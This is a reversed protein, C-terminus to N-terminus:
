RGVCGIVLEADNGHRRDAPDRSIKVGTRCWHTEVAFVLGVLLSTAFGVQGAAGTQLGPISGNPCCAVRAKEL